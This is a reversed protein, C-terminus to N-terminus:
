KRSKIGMERKWRELVNDHNTYWTPNFHPNNKFLNMETWPRKINTIVEMSIDVIEKTSLWYKRDANPRL